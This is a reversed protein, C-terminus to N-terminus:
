RRPEQVWPLVAPGAAALLAGLCSSLGLGPFELVDEDAPFEELVAVGVEAVACDVDGADDGEVVTWRGSERHTGDWTLDDRVELVV